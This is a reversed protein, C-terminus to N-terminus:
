HWGIDTVAQRNGGLRELVVAYNMKVKFITKTAYVAAVIGYIALIIILTLLAIRGFRFVFARQFVRVAKRDAM